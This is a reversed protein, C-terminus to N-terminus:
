RPLQTATVTVTVGRLPGPTILVAVRWGSRTLVVMRQSPTSRDGAVAFGAKAGVTKYYEAAAATDASAIRYRAYQEVYAGSRRQWASGTQAGSMPPLGAPLTDLRTLDAASEPRRAMAAPDTAGSSPASAPMQANMWLALKDADPGKAPRVYFRHVQWALLIGAILLLVYLAGRLRSGKPLAPKDLPHSM